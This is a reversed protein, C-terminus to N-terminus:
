FFRRETNTTPSAFRADVDQSPVGDRLALGASFLTQAADPRVLKRDIEGPFRDFLPPRSSFTILWKIIFNDFSVQLEM